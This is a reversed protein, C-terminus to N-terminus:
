GSCRCGALMKDIDQDKFEGKRFVDNALVKYDHYLVITLDADKADKFESPGSGAWFTFAVWLAPRICRPQKGM